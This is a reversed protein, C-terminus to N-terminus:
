KGFFYDTFRNDIQIVGGTIGSSEPTPESSPAPTPTPESSPAPTPTPTPEPPSSTEGGSDDFGYDGTGFPICGSGSWEYGEDCSSGDPNHGGEGKICGGWPDCYNPSPGCDM